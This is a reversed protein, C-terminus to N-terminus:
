VERTLKKRCWHLTKDCVKNSHLTTVTAWGDGNGKDRINTILVPDGNSKRYLGETIEVHKFLKFETEYKQQAPTMSEEPPTPPIRVWM